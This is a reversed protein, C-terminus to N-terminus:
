SLANDVLVRNAIVTLTVSPAERSDVTTTVGGAAVFWPFEEGDIEIRGRSLTITEALRPTM